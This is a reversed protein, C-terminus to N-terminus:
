PNQIGSCTKDTTMKGGVLNRMFELQQPITENPERPMIHSVELENEISRSEMYRSRLVPM